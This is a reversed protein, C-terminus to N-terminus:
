PEEDMGEHYFGPFSVHSNIACSSIDGPLGNLISAAHKKDSEIRQELAAPKVKYLPNGRLPNKLLIARLSSQGGS